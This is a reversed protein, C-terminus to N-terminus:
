GLFYVLLPIGTWSLHLGTRIVRLAKTIQSEVTKESINLAIAITKNSWGEERSLKYVLRCREPLSAALGTIHTHLEKVHLAQEVSPEQTESWSSENVQERHRRAMRSFVQNRVAAALFSKLSHEIQIDARRRWLDAFVDQIVEEADALNGLKNAAVSFLLKWYQHYIETFATPDDASM